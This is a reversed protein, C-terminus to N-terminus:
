LRSVVTKLSPRFCVTACIWGEQPKHSNETMFDVVDTRLNALNHYVLFFITPLRWTLWLDPFPGLGIILLTTLVFCPFTFSLWSVVIDERGTLWFFSIQLWFLLNVVSGDYPAIQLSYSYPGSLDFNTLKSKCNIARDKYIAIVLKEIGRDGYENSVEFPQVRAWHPIRRFPIKWM